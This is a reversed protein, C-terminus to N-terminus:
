NSQTIGKRELYKSEIQHVMVDRTWGNRATEGIYCLHQQNDKVKDLLTIHHYRTIQALTGQV